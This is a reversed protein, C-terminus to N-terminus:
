NCCQAGVAGVAQPAECETPGVRPLKSHLATWGLFLFSVGTLGLMVTAPYGVANQHLWLLGQPRGKTGFPFVTNNSLPPM